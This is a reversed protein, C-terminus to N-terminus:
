KHDSFANKINGVKWYLPWCRISCIFGHDNIWFGFDYNWIILIYNVAIWIGWLFVCSCMYGEGFSLLSQFPPWICRVSCASFPKIHEFCVMLIVSQMRLMGRTMLILLHLAQHNGLLGFVAEVFLIKPSFVYWFDDADFLM